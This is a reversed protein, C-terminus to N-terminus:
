EPDRPERAYQAQMLSESENTVLWQKLQQTLPALHNQIKVQRPKEFYASAYINRKSSYPPLLKLNTKPARVATYFCYIISYAFSSWNCARRGKKGNSHSSFGDGSILFAGAHLYKIILKSQGM